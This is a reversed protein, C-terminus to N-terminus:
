EGYRIVPVGRVNLEPRMWFADNEFRAFLDPPLITPREIFSVQKRVTHLGPSAIAADFEPADYEVDNFDHAFAPEGIFDYLHAM